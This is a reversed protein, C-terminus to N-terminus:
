LSKHWNAIYEYAETNSDKIISLTTPSFTSKNFDKYNKPYNASLIQIDRRLTYWDLDSDVLSKDVTYWDSLIQVLGFVPRILVIDGIKMTDKFIGPQEKDNEWEHWMGITKTQMLINWITDEDFAEKDNPHLQMHWYNM